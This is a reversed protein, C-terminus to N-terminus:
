DGGRMAADRMIERLIPLLVKDDDEITEDAFALFPIKLVKGDPIPLGIDTVRTLIVRRRDRDHEGLTRFEMENEGKYAVRIHTKRTPFARFFQADNDKYLQELARQRPDAVIDM